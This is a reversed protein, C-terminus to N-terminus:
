SASPVMAGSPRITNVDVRSPSRSRWTISAAPPLTRRSVSRGLDLWADTLALYRHNGPGNKTLEDCTVRAVRAAERRVIPSQWLCYLGYLLLGLAVVVVAKMFSPLSGPTEKQTAVPTASTPSTEGGTAM